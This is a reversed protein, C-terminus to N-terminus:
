VNKNEKYEKIEFNKSYRIPKLEKYVKNISDIGERARRKQDETGRKYIQIIRKVSCSSIGTREALIVKIDIKEKIGNNRRTYQNGGFRNLNYKAKDQLEKFWDTEFEKEVIKYYSLSVKKEEEEIIKLYEKRRKKYKEQKEEYHLKRHCNSCLVICKEIEKLIEEKGYRNLSQGVNFKKDKEDKHHFDLVESCENYGCFECELTKKYDDFWGRIKIRTKRRYEANKEKNDKDWKNGYKRKKKEKEEQEKKYKKTLPYKYKLYYKKSSERNREEKTKSNRKKDDETKRRRARRDSLSCDRSCYLETSIGNFPTKCVKCKLIDEM